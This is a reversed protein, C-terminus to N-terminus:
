KSVDKKRLYEIEIRISINPLSGNIEVVSGDHFIGIIDINERMNLSEYRRNRQACPCELSSM